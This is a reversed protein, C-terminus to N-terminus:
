KHLIELVLRYVSYIDDKNEQSYMPFDMNRISFPNLYLQKDNTYQKLLTDMFINTYKISGVDALRINYLNPLHIINTEQIIM